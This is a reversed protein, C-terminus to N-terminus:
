NRRDAQGGASQLSLRELLQAVHAKLSSRAADYSTSAPPVDNWREIRQEDGAVRAPLDTGIMVIRAAEAADSADVKTPHFESVDVGEALLAAAINKPVTTSDPSIGRAVARWPLGRQAALQNFYSAAMLSKVNGRECVFVIQEAPPQEAAFSASSVLALTAVASILTRM